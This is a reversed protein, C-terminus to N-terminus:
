RRWSPDYSPVATTITALPKGDIQVVRISRNCYSASCFGYASSVDGFAVRSGDRSWTPNSVYTMNQTLPVQGSGDANAIYIDTTYYITRTYAIKNGDPSWAPEMDERYNSTVQRLDTGDPKLTWIGTALDGGVDRAIAIRSGDPSWDPSTYNAKDGGILRRRMTGDSYMVSISSNPENTGQTAFAIRTGDPSWAPQYSDGPGYTLRVQNTGDANMVYIDHKGDRTSSFAIKKGDRSWAPDGDWGPANTLQRAAGGTSPIVYINAASDIGFVYVIDATPDPPPAACTVAFAALADIGSAVSVSRTNAGVFSCNPALGDLQVSHDGTPLETFRVMRNIGVTGRSIGDLRLTYGHSELGAIAGSTSVAVEINGSGPGSPLHSDNCAAALAAFVLVNGVALRCRTMSM